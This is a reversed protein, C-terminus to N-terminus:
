TEGRGYLHWIVDPLLTLAVERQAAPAAVAAAAVPAATEAALESSERLLRSRILKNHKKQKVGLVLGNKVEREM